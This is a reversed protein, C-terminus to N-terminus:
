FLKLSAVLVFLALAGAFAFGAVLLTRQSWMLLDIYTPKLPWRSEFMVAHVATSKAGIGANYAFFIAAGGLAFAVFCIVWIAVILIRVRASSSELPFVKESFALSLTLVGAIVVLFQKAL